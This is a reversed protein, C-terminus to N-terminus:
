NISKCKHKKWYIFFYLDKLWLYAFSIVYRLLDKAESENACISCNKSYEGQAWNSVSPVFGPM